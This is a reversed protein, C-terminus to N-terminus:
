KLVENFGLSVLGFGKTNDENATTFVAQDALGTQLQPSISRRRYHDVVIVHSSYGAGMVVLEAGIRGTTKDLVIPIVSSAIPHGAHQKVAIPCTKWVKDGGTFGCKRHSKQLPEICVYHNALETELLTSIHVVEKM